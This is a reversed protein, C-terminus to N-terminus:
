VSNQIKDKIKRTLDVIFENWEEIQYFINSFGRSLEDGVSAIPIGKSETYADIWRQDIKGNNHIYCNRTEKALKLEKLESESILDENENFFEKIGQWKSADKEGLCLIQSSDKILDEFLSFLTQLHSITFEGDRSTLISYLQKPVYSHQSNNKSSPLGFPVEEEWLQTGSFQAKIIYSHGWTAMFLAKWRDECENIRSITSGINIPIDM